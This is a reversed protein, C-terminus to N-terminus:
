RRFIINNSLTHQADYRMYLGYIQNTSDIPIPDTITIRNFKLQEEFFEGLKNGILICLEDASFRTDQKKYGMCYVDIQWAVETAMETNVINFSSANNQLTQITILPYLDDNEFTKVYTKHVNYEELGTRINTNKPIITSLDTDTEIFEKLEDILWQSYDYM